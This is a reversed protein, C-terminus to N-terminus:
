PALAQLAQQARVSEPRVALIRRYVERAQELRRGRTHVDGLAFLADLDRPESALRAELYRLAEDLREGELANRAATLACGADQQCAERAPALLSLAEEARGDAALAYALERRAALETTLTFREALLPLARDTRGRALWLRALEGRIAADQPLAESALVLADTALALQEDRIALAAIQRACDASEVDQRQVSLALKAVSQTHRSLLAEALAAHLVIRRGWDVNARAMRRLLESAKAKSARGDCPLALEAYRQLLAESSPARTLAALVRREEQASAQASRCTWCSLVIAVLGWRM